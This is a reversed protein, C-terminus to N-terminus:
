YGSGLGAMTKSFGGVWWAAERRQVGKADLTSDSSVASEEGPGPVAAGHALRPCQDGKTWAHRNASACVNNSEPTQRARNKVNRVRLRELKSMGSM